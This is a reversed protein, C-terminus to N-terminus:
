PPPLPFTLPAVSDIPNMMQPVYIDLGDKLYSNLYKLRSELPPNVLLFLWYPLAYVALISSSSLAGCMLTVEVMTCIPKVTVPFASVDHFIRIKIDIKNHSKKLCLNLLYLVDSPTCWAFM